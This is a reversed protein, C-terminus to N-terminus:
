HFTDNPGLQAASDPLWWQRLASAGEPQIRTKASIINPKAQIIHKIHLPKHSSLTAGQDGLMVLRKIVDAQLPTYTLM